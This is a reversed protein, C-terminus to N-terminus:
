GKLRSIEADKAEIATMAMKWQQEIWEKGESLSRIWAEQESLLRQADENSQQLARWQAQWWDRAQTLERAWADKEDIIEASAKIEKLLWDKSAHLIDVYRGLRRFQSLSDREIETAFVVPRIEVESLTRLAGSIRGLLSFIEGLEGLEFFPAVRDPMTKLHTEIASITAAYTERWITRAEKYRGNAVYVCGLRFAADAPKTLLTVHYDLARSRIVELFKAEAGKQDGAALALLAQVFSLSIKWRLVTLNEPEDINVYADIASSLASPLTDDGMELHVYALICLCAGADASEPRASRLAQRAFEQRLETNEIRLGISVLSRFIWPNEYHEAIALAAGAAAREEEAFMRDQFPVDRGPAIDKCGVALFWEAEIPTDMDTLDLNALSRPRPVFEGAAGGPKKVRNATQSQLKELRFYASLDSIFKPLTYVQLHYPNPDRGTEDTWDNPVSAVIRGGPTLIREFERLLPKADEVHELTEFTVIVDCSNDPVPVLCDPLYGCVFDVAEARGYNSTAYETCFASADYGRVHSAQSLQSLVHTGYGMGCAADIVRDGPRIYKAALVYRIIHADSRSGSERMMDMHLSREEALVDLPYADVAPSAIRELPIVLPYPENQLTSYENFAYYGSHKRFGCRYCADEWQARIISAHVDSGTAPKDIVLIAFRRTAVHMWTLINLIAVPELGDLIRDFIITDFDGSTGVAAFFEGNTATAVINSGELIQAAVTRAGFKSLARCLTKDANGIVLMKGYGCFRTIEEALISVRRAEDTM